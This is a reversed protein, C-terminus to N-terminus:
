TVDLNLNKMKLHDNVTNITVSLLYSYVLFLQGATLIKHGKRFWFYTDTILNSNVSVNFTVVPPSSLLLAPIMSFLIVPVCVACFYKVLEVSCLGEESDLLDEAVRSIGVVANMVVRWRDRYQALDIWDTGGGWDVERLDMKINDNWGLRPRGLPKRGDPKGVLVCKAGRRKGYTGCVRGM